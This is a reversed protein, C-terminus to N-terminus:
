MYMYISAIHSYRLRSGALTVCDNLLFLTHYGCYSCREAKITYDVRSSVIGDPDDPSDFSKLFEKFVQEETWKGNLYKPHKRANYVRCHPPCYHYYNHYAYLLFSM